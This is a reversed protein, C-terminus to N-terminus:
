KPENEKTKPGPKWKKSKGKKRKNETYVEKPEEGTKEETKRKRKKNEM